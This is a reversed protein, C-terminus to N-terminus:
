LVRGRDLECGEIDNGILGRDEDQRNILSRAGAREAM